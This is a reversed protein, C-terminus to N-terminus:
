NLQLAIHLELFYGGGGRLSESIGLPLPPRIASFKWPSPPYHVDIIKRLTKHSFTSMHSVM